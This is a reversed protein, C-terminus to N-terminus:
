PLTSSRSSPRRAAVAASGDSGGCSLAWLPRTVLKGGAVGTSTVQAIITPPAHAWQTTSPATCTPRTSPRRHKDSRSLRVAVSRRRRPLAPVPTTGSPPPSRRPHWGNHLPRNRKPEKRCYARYTGLVAAGVAGSGPASPVELRGSAAGSRSTRRVKSSGHHVTECSPGGTVSHGRVRPTRSEPRWREGAM